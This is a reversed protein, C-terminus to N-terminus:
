DREDARLTKIWTKSIERINKRRPQREGNFSLKKGEKLRAASIRQLVKIQKLKKWNRKRARDLEIEPLIFGFDFDNTAGIRKVVGIVSPAIPLFVFSSLFM